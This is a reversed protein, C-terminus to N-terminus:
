ALIKKIPTGNNCIRFPRGNPAYYEQDLPLGMATAITANFDEPYVADGEPSHGLADSEGYAGGGQIGAGCMLGSFVGPHHDRGANENITPTRGFETALVVLVEDLMRKSALDRLLAGLANDLDAVMEPLRTYIDNHHDWNGYDVEVFRVGNEVLRRALLCGQGIKNEGYFKRIEEPEQKIDFANLESSGMLRVAERYTEDYAEILHSKYDSKFKADFQNSLSMRRRFQDESLYSPSQTNELGSAPNSVPVPAISAPLFGAAPHGAASGILVNGPLNPNRKDLVHNAWAGLGPHRISNLPKYSTQLLYRGQEHAGTETTMSRVLAIGNMLYSLKPMKDSIMIGPVRTKAAQTEGQSASGPKPDLTDLHSMAGNMYLYIVSKAKGVAPTSEAAQAMTQLTHRAIAGACGVGLLARAADAMFTRRTPHFGSYTEPLTSRSFM